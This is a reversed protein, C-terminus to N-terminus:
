QGAHSRPEIVVGRRKLFEACRRLGIGVQKEVTHESIGLRTAIEKHSLGHIRRLLLVQRCRDPLDRLAEALLALEQNVSAVEPAGAGDQYVSSATKETLPVFPVVARRRFLDLAINRAVSFLYPRVRVLRGTARARLVRVYSEQVLDDTDELSPFQRRLWARLAPEHPQVEDAFWRAQDTSEPPMPFFKPPRLTQKIANLKPAGNGYFDLAM